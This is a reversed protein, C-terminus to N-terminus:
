PLPNTNALVEILKKCGGNKVFDSHEGISKFCKGTIANCEMEYDTEELFTKLIKDTVPDSFSVKYNGKRVRGLTNMWIAASLAGCGVV